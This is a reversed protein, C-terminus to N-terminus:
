GRAKKGPCPLDSSGEGCGCRSCTAGKAGGPVWRHKTDRAELMADALLYAVEAYTKAGGEKDSWTPLTPGMHTLAAMAFQDRLERDAEERSVPIVPPDLALERMLKARQQGHKMGLDYFSRYEATDEALANKGAAVEMGDACEELGRPKEECLPTRGLMHVWVVPNASICEVRGECFECVSKWGDLKMGM